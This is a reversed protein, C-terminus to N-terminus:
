NIKSKKNPLAWDQLERDIILKNSNDIYYTIYSKSNQGLGSNYVDIFSRVAETHYFKRDKLDKDFNCEITKRIVRNKDVGKRRFLEYLANITSAKRKVNAKELFDKEFELFELTKEYNHFKFNGNKIVKMVSGSAPMNIAIQCLSAAGYNGHNILEVLKIYEKNGQNAFSEIYNQLTWSKQSTNMRIIDEDKLGEKIIYEVPVGALKSHYLRNQGDIVVMHENVIIPSIIGRRAEDLMEERYSVFRNSNSFKFISYDKTEFVTNVGKKDEMSYFYSTATAQNDSINLM